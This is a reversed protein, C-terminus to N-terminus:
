HSLKSVAAVAVRLEAAHKEVTHFHSFCQEDSELKIRRVTERFPSDNGGDPLTHSPLKEATIM